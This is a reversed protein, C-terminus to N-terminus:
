IQSSASTALRRTIGAAVLVAFSDTELRTLRQAVWTSVANGSQDTEQQSRHNAFCHEAINTVNACRTDSLSVLAFGTRVPFLQTECLAM